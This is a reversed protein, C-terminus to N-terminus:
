KAEATPSDRNEARYDKIVLEISDTDLGREVKLSFEDKKKRELYKLALEPNDVFGSIVAKRAKLFPDNKLLNKREVFEPNKKQYNYLTARCIGAFLAAEDDTCDLLYAEELKNLVDRTVAKPRGSPKIDEPKKKKTM